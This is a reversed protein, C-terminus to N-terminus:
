IANDGLKLAEKIAHVAGTCHTQAIGLLEQGEEKSCFVQIPDINLPMLKDVTLNVYGSTDDKERHKFVQQLADFAKDRLCEFSSQDLQICISM